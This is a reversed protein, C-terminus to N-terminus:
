KPVPEDADFKLWKQCLIMGFGVSTFIKTLQQLSYILTLGEGSSRMLVLFFEFIHLWLAALFYIVFWPIQHRWSIAPRVQIILNTIILYAVVYMGAPVNSNLELTFGILICLLNAPLVRQHISSIVLWPTLLDVAFNPSLLSPFITNQIFSVMIIYAVDKRFSGSNPHPKLERIFNTVGDFTLGPRFVNDPKATKM